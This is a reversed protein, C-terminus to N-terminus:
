RAASTSPASTAVRRCRLTPIERREGNPLPEFLGSKTEITLKLPDVTREISLLFQGNEGANVEVQEEDDLPFTLPLEVELEQDGIPQIHFKERLRM